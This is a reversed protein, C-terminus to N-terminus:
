ERMSQMPDVIAARWSPVISLGVYPAVVAGAIGFLQALDVEPVFPADPFLM